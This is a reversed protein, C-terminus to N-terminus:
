YCKEVRVSSIIHSMVIVEQLPFLCPTHRHESHRWRSSPPHFVSALLAWLHSLNDPLNTVSMVFVCTRNLTLPKQVQSEKGGLLFQLCTPSFQIRKILIIFIFILPMRHRLPQPVASRVPLNRSRYWIIDNSNKM